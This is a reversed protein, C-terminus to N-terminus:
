WKELLQDFLQMGIALITESLLWWVFTGVLYALWGRDPFWRTILWFIFCFTSGNLILWVTTRLLSLRLAKDFFYRRLYAEFSLKFVVVTLVAFVAVIVLWSWPLPIDLASWIM